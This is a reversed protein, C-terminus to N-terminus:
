IYSYRTHFNSMTKGKDFKSHTTNHLRFERGGLEMRITPCKHM